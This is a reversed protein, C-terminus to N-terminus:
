KRHYVGENLILFVCFDNFFINKQQTYKASFFLSIKQMNKAYYNEKIFGIFSPFKSFIIFVKEIKLVRLESRNQIQLKQIAM